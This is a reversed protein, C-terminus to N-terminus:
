RRKMRLWRSFSPCVGRGHKSECQRVMGQLADQISQLAAIKEEVLRLKNLAMDHTVDCIQPGDLELLDAINDLNFGLTQARKIFRIRQADACTYERYGAAPKEPEALL